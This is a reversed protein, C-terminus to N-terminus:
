YKRLDSIMGLNNMHSIFNIVAPRKGMKRLLQSIKTKIRQLAESLMTVSEVWPKGEESSADYSDVATVVDAMTKVIYTGFAERFMKVEDLIFLAGGTATKLPPLLDSVADIVDSDPLEKRHAAAAGGPDKSILGAAPHRARLPVPPETRSHVLSNMRSGPEPLTPADGDGVPLLAEGLIDSELLHPSSVVARKWTGNMECYLVKAKDM